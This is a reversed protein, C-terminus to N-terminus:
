RDSGAASGTLKEGERQFVFCLVTRDREGWSEPTPTVHGVELDSLEYQRGVFGEFQAICEDNAFETMADTGPYPDTRGGPHEVVAFVENLHPLNCDIAVVGEVEQGAEDPVVRYDFCMGPELASVDVQEGPPETTPPATDPPATSTTTDDTAADDGGCAVAVLALAAVLLAVPRLVPRLDAVPRLDPAVRRPSM